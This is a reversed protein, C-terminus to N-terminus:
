LADEDEEDEDEEYAIERAKKRRRMRILVYSLLLIGLVGAAATAGFTIIQTRIRADATLIDQYDLIRTQDYESLSQIEEQIEKLNKRDRLSISSVPYLQDAVRANIQDIRAQIDAIEERKEKLIELCQVYDERNVAKQCKDLLKVVPLYDETTAEEPLSLVQAEDEKTFVINAQIERGEGFLSAVKGTDPEARFDYLPRLAGYYRCLATLALMAQDGAMDNSKTPDAEPNSEDYELSHVFGGDEMHYQMLGDIVTCGKKIFRQDNGPDIQLATLAILVQATSEATATQEREFGGDSLQAESLYALAKEVAPKVEERDRYPALAQLAMATLDTDASGERGDLTFGGNSLQVKLLEELMSERTDVADEPEQYDMSDLTLLGYIYGNIGQAGLRETKGRYYTGDAILNIPNGDGDQGISTPDGGLALVALSIRHWETAKVPDLGGEKQYLSSVQDALVALCAQNDDEYGSRGIAIATWDGATTGAYQLFHEQFLPADKDVGNNGKKWQIVQQIIEKLEKASYDYHAPEAARAGSGMWVFLALCVLFALGMWRNKRRKNVM